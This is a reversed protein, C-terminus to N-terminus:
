QPNAPQSAAEALRRAMERAKAHPNIAPSFPESIVTEGNVGDFELVQMNPSETHDYRMRVASASVKGAGANNFTELIRATSM